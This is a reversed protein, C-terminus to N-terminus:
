RALLPAATRFRWAARACRSRLIQTARIACLECSCDCGARLIARLDARVQCEYDTNACAGLAGAGGTSLTPPQPISCLGLSRNTSFQTCNSVWFLRWSSAARALWHQQGDCALSADATAAAAAPTTAVAATAAPWSAHREHDFWSQWSSRKLSSCPNLLSLSQAQRYAHRQCDHWPSDDAAAVDAAATRRHVAFSASEDDISHWWSWALRRKCCDAPWCNHSRQSFSAPM